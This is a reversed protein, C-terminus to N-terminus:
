AYRAEYADADYSDPVYDLAFEVTLDFDDAGDVGNEFDAHDRDAGGFINVLDEVEIVDADDSWPTWPANSEKHMVATGDVVYWSGQYERAYGASHQTAVKKAIEQKISNSIQINRM